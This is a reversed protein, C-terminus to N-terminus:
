KKEESKKEPKKIELIKEEQKKLTVIKKGTENHTIKLTESDVEIDKSVTEKKGGGEVEEDEENPEYDDLNGEYYENFNPVKIVEITPDDKIM